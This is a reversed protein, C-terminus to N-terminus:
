DETSLKLRQPQLDQHEVVVRGGLAEIIAVFTELTMGTQGTELKSLHAASKTAGAKVAERLTFGEAARLLKVIKGPPKGSM